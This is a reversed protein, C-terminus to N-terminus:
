SLQRQLDVVYRALDQPSAVQRAVAVRTELMELDEPDIKLYQNALLLARRLDGNDRAQQLKLKLETALDRRLEERTTDVWDSEMKSDPLFPGRYLSLARATDGKSLAERLHELDLDIHVSPGLRYRPAKPSGDMWLIQQGLKVRLERFVARFYDGATKGERDPYLTSELDRRTCGPHLALYALTLVSGQLSFKIEEGDRFIAARGLTQVRLHLVADDPVSDRGLLVDFKDLLVEMYPSLEPDLLAHQVLDALERLDPSFLILDRASLLGEMALKLSVSSGEPDGNKAQADALHLLTRLQARSELRPSDLAIQFAEIAASYLHRRRLLMGRTATVLPHKGEPALEFLTEMAQSHRGQRSYLDALHAATWTSSEFDQLDELISQLQLLIDLYRDQNGALHYYDAEASLIHAKSKLSETLQLAEQAADLTRRAEKLEGLSIQVDALGGLAAIRFVPQQTLPMRRIAEEYLQRARPLNGVSLHMQAMTQTIRGIMEDDGLALYGHWAAECRQLGMETRGALFDVTGWWRQARLLLEGSLKPVVEMFHAGAESLRGTVRLLNGYEVMGEPDGAQSSQQLPLEAQEYHGSLIHAM